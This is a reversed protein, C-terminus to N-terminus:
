YRVGFDSLVQHAVQMLSNQANNTKLWRPDNRMENEFQWLPKVVSKGGSDRFQLSQKIKPDFLNISGPPLELIQAMSQMYPSALDSVSQGADIQKAWFSYTAKAQERLKSEFDQQTAMGSVVDRSANDMWSDSVQVGMNYAYESLKDQIEGAEGYRQTGPMNLRRGLQYRLQQDTWGNYSYQYALDKWEKSSLKVGMQAGLQQIKVFNQDLKQRATAPDGYQTILFERQTKNLTKWWKTDRLEAQFKESTWQGSVAKNFLDKLEKSSNLLSDVFGYQEALEKATLTAPTGVDNFEDAFGTSAQEEGGGSGAIKNARNMVDDVYQKISPGGSQARTSQDLSPNGSYWASAAGRPGYSDFYKKLRHRVIKEQLEPSDRFEQWTISHGLAARSWEPVNSKLVQYKGVAGYANVASYRERPGLGGSEQGAIAAMFDDFTIAM